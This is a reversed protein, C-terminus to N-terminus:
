SYKKRLSSGTEQRLDGDELLHSILGRLEVADMFFYDPNRTVACDKDEPNSPM